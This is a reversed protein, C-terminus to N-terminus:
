NFFWDQSTTSPRPVRTPQYYMKDRTAANLSEYVLSKIIDSMRKNSIRKDSNQCISASRLLKAHSGPTYTKRGIADLLDEIPWSSPTITKRMDGINKNIRLRYPDMFFFFIRFLVNFYIRRMECKNQEFGLSSIEQQILFQFFCFLVHTSLLDSLLPLVTLVPLKILFLCFESINLFILGGTYTFLSWFWYLFM